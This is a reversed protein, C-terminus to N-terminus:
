GNTVEVVPESHPKLDRKGNKGAEFAALLANDGSLGTQIAIDIETQMSIFDSPLVKVFKPLEDSWQSLITRAVASGTYKAHRSIMERIEKMEEKDEIKQLEVMQLNCRAPFTGDSDYVYAIGGSMGAAFNRGTSGLIVVRGGTMYECGHDGVAEVVACAGSNRVCFREGAMGRIYAEGSTAGYLAVNGIIVNKEALLDSERPPYVIIRGGSLGKGVYDNSDGALVLTVGRPLFSGFSQGASGTFHLRITDEPLGEEGYRRTVESGLIAGVTRDTTAIKLNAEVPERNSLAPACIDLLVCM